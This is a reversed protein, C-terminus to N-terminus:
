NMFLKPSLFRTPLIQADLGSEQLIRTPRTIYTMWNSPICSGRRKDSCPAREQERCQCPLIWSCSKQNQSKPTPPVGVTQRRSQIGFEKLPKQKSMQRFFRIM